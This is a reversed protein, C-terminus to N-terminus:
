SEGPLGLVTVSLLHQGSPALGPSINTLQVCNNIISNPQIDANLCLYKQRYLPQSSKFYLCTVSRPATPIPSDLTVHPELLHKVTPPDAALVVRDAEVITGNDLKVGAVGAENVLLEVVRSHCRIQDPRLRSTLQDSIAGLGYKPTLIAGESLMKFYFQFLHASTEIKPDLFIGGYFPLFFQRIFRDSFGWAELFSRTTVDPQHWIDAIAMSALKARLALVRLKDGLSALPNTLSPWLSGLDRFPDSLVYRKGSRVLIAGPSYPRVDLADLDLYRKVCPYAAFLVQFGRDLHFGEVIDTRVRGGPRDSRELVLVNEVGRDRLVKACTLGALGGGVIIIRNCESQPLGNQQLRDSM